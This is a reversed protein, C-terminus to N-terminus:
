AEQVMIPTLITLPHVGHMSRDPPRMTIIIDSQTHSCIVFYSVKSRELLVTQRKLVAPLPMDIRTQCVIKLIAWWASCFSELNLSRSGFTTYKTAILNVFVSLRFAEM